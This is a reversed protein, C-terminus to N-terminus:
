SWCQKVIYRKHEIKVWMEQEYWERLHVRTIPTTMLGENTNRKLTSIEQKESNGTEVIVKRKLTYQLYTASSLKCTNGSCM